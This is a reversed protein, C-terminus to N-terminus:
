SNVASERDPRVMGVSATLSNEYRMKCNHRNQWACVAVFDCVMSTYINKAKRHINLTRDVDDVYKDVLNTTSKRTKRYNEVRNVKFIASTSHLFITLIIGAASM